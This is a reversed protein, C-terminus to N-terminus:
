AEGDEEKEGDYSPPKIKQFEGQLEKKQKYQHRTADDDDSEDIKRKGSGEGEQSNWFNLERILKEQEKSASSLRDNQSRLEALERQLRHLMAMVPANPDPTGSEDRLDVYIEEGEAMEAGSYVSMFCIPLIKFLFNEVISM